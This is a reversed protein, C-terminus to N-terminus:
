GISFHKSVHHEIEESVVPTHTPFLKDWEGRCRAVESPFNCNKRPAWTLLILLDAVAFGGFIRVAPNPDTIRFDLIGQATPDVRAIQSRSLKDHPDMGITVYSGNVFRELVAVTRASVAAFSDDISGDWEVFSRAEGGLFVHREVIFSRREPEFLTLNGNERHKQIEEKISM